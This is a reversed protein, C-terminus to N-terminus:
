VVYGAVDYFALQYLPDDANFRQEIIKQFEIAAEAGSRQSLYALGRVYISLPYYREFRSATQLLQIAQAPKNRNTEVAARITPVYIANVITGKPKGKVLEDAISQAENSEGCH